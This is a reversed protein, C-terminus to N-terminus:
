TAPVLRAALELTDFYARGALVLGGALDFRDVVGLSLPEGGVEAEVRWEAFALADDGAWAVLEMRLGALLGTLAGRYHALENRALPRPLDPGALTGDERFVRALDGAGVAVWAAGYARVVAEPGEIPDAVPGAEAAVPAYGPLAPLAPNLLAFLGRRDYYRRGRRVRDAELDVCYVSRWRAPTRGVTAENRAEVFLTGDRQRWREPTMRFDPVLKLIGELHGPIEPVTIPREMGADFLTAEPHFLPLYTEVGPRNGFAAFRELFSEVSQSM